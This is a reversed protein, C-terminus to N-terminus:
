DLDEDRQASEGPLQMRGRSSSTLGLDNCLGRTIVLAKQMAILHPMTQSNRGTLYKSYGGKRQIHSSCQVILAYNECYSALAALDLRSIIGSKTLEPVIRKWETKAIASLWRPCPPAALPTSVKKEPRMRTQRGTGKLIKLQAPL